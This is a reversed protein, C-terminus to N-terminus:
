FDVSYLKNMAQVFEFCTLSENDEIMETILPKIIAYIKSHESKLYKTNIFRASIHNDQDSDLYSYITVFIEEKMKIYVKENSTSKGESDVRPSAIRSINSNNIPDYKYKLYKMREEHQKLYNDQRNFFTSNLTDQKNSTEPSKEIKNNKIGENRTSSNNPFTYKNNDYENSYDYINGSSILINDKILVKQDKQDVQNSQIFNVNSSYIRDSLEVNNKSKIDINDDSSIKNLDNASVNSVFNTTELPKVSNIEIKSKSLSTSPKKISSGCRSPYYHNIRPSFTYKNKEEQEIRKILEEKRKEKKELYKKSDFNDYNPLLKIQNAPDNDEYSIQKYGERTLCVNSSSHNISPKFTCIKTENLQQEYMKQERYNKNKEKQMLGKYYLENGKSSTTPQKRSSLYDPVNVNMSFLQNSQNVKNTKHKEFKKKEAEQYLKEFINKNLVKYTQKKPINQLNIQKIQKNPSFKLKELQSQFQSSKYIGFSERKSENEDEKVIISSDKDVKLSKKKIHFNYYDELEKESAFVLPKKKYQSENSTITRKDITNETNNIYVESLFNSEKKMYEQSSPTNCHFIEENKEVIINEPPTENKEIKKDNELLEKNALSIHSIKDEISLNKTENTNVSPTIKNLKSIHNPSLSTDKLNNPKSDKTIMKNSKVKTNSLKVEVGENNLSTNNITQNNALYYNSQLSNVTDNGYQDKFEKCVVSKPNQNNINNTNGKFSGKLSSNLSVAKISMEKMMSNTFSEKKSNKSCLSRGSNTLIDEHPQDQEINEFIKSNSNFQSKNRINKNVSSIKSQIEDEGYVTKERKESYGEEEVEIIEDDIRNNIPYRTPPKSKFFHYLLKEIEQKLYDCSEPPLSHFVCFSNALEFPDTDTYININTSKGEHLELTMVYMPEENTTPHQPPNFNEPKVKIEELFENQLQNNHNFNEKIEDIYNQNLEVKPENIEGQGFLENNLNNERQYVQYEQNFYYNSDINNNSIASNIEQDNFNQIKKNNEEDYNIEVENKYYINEENQYNKDNEEYEENLEIDNNQYNSQFNEEIDEQNEQKLYDESDINKKYNEIGDINEENGEYNLEDYNDGGLIEGYNDEYNENEEEENLDNLDEMNMQKLDKSDLDELATNNQNEEQLKNEDFDTLNDDLDEIENNKM